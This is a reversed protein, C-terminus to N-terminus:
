ENFHWIFDWLPESPKTQSHTSRGRSRTTQIHRLFERRITALSKGLILNIISCSSHAMVSCIGQVGDAFLEDICQRRRQRHIPCYLLRM